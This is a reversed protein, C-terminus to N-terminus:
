NLRRKKSVSNEIIINNLKLGSKEMIEPNKKLLNTFQNLGKIQYDSDMIMILYQKYIEYLPKPKIKEFVSLNTNTGLVSKVNKKNEKLEVLETKIGKYKSIFQNQEDFNLKTIEDKNLILLNDINSLISIFSKSFNFWKIPFIYKSFINNVIEKPLVTILSSKKLIMNYNIIDQGIYQSHINLYGKIHIKKLFLNTTLLEDILNNYGYIPMSKKETNITNFLKLYNSIISEQEAMVTNTIKELSEILFVPQNEKSDYCSLLYSTENVQFNESFFSTLFQESYDILIHEANNNELSDDSELAGDSELGNNSDSPINQQEIEEMCYCVPLLIEKFNYM